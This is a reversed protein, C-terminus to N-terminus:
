RYTRLRHKHTREALRPVASSDMYVVAIRDWGKVYGARVELGWRLRRRGMQSGGNTHRALM